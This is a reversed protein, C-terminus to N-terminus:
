HATCGDSCDSGKCGCHKCSEGQHVGYESIEPWFYPDLCGFKAEALKRTQRYLDVGLGATPQHHIFKGFRQKCFNSYDQTCLIFSHWIKDLNASPSCQGETESCLQLFKALEEFHVQAIENNCGSEKSYNIVFTEPAHMVTM